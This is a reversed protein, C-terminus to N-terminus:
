YYMAFSHKSDAPLIRKGGKVLMKIEGFM